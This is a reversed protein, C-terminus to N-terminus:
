GPKAAASGAGCTSAARRATAAAGAVAVAAARGLLGSTGTAGAARRAPAGAARGGHAARQDATGAASACNARTVSTCVPRSSREGVPEPLESGIRGRAHDLHHDSLTRSTAPRATCATPPTSRCAAPATRTRFCRTCPQRAFARARIATSARAAIRASAPTPWTCTCRSSSMTRPRRWICRRPGIARRCALTGTATATAAHASRQRELLKLTADNAQRAAVDLAHARAARNRIRCQRPRAVTRAQIGAQHQAGRPAVRGGPSARWAADYGKVTGHATLHEACLMGRVCPRTSGRSARPMSRAPPM